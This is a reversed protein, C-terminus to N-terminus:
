PVVAMGAVFRRALQKDGELTVADPPVEGRGGCLRVFSERDTRVRATPSGPPLELRIGRGTDDVAYAAESGDVEVVITQGPKAGARKGLVYGLTGALFSLVYDAPDTRLNGPRGIARRIDQEHMWLDFPRNRLLTETDWGLSGFPEPTPARPDAPPTAVLTAYREDVASRLEEVIDRPHHGRRNVVGTETWRSMPSSIHPLDGIEAAPERRGITVSELHAAHSAVAKVDWGPLETPTSWDDPRLGDLLDLMEDAAQKWVEVLAWLRPDGYPGTPIPDSQHTSTM